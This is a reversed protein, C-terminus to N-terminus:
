SLEGDKKKSLRNPRIEKITECHKTSSVKKNCFILVFVKMQYNNIRVVDDCISRMEHCIRREERERELHLAAKTTMDITTHSAIGKISASLM